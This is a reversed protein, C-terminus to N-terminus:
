VSLMSALGIAAGYPVTAGAVGLAIAATPNGTSSAIIAGGLAGLVAGTKINEGPLVSALSAGGTLGVAAGAVGALIGSSNGAFAGVAAGALGIGGMILAGKAKEGFSPEYRDYSESKASEQKPAPKPASTAMTSSIRKTTSIQMLQEGSLTSPTEDPGM